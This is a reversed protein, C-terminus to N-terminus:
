GPPWEMPRGGIVHLHIHFVTQGADRHTNMVLRYGSDAIGRQRALKAATLYLHGVLEREDVTLDNVTPIHQLPIVLLHTPAQPHIDELVMCLADRQVVKAPVQGDRIKCFICESM